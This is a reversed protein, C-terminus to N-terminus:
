MDSLKDAAHDSSPSVIDVGELEVDFNDDMVMTKNLLIQWEEKVVQTLFLGEDESETDSAVTFCLLDQHESMNALLPTRLNAHHLSTIFLTDFHTHFAAFHKSQIHLINYKNQVRVIDIVYNLRCDRFLRIYIERQLILFACQGTPKAQTVVKLKM